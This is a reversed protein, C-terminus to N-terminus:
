DSSSNTGLFGLIPSGAGLLFGLDYWSGGIAVNYFPINSWGGFIHVILVVWAIVGDWIGWVLDM